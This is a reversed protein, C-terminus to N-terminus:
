LAIQLRRGRGVLQEVDGIAFGQNLAVDTKAVDPGAVRQRIEAADVRDFPPAVMPHQEGLVAGREFPGRRPYGLRWRYPLFGGHALRRQSPVANSPNSPPAKASSAIGAQANPKM